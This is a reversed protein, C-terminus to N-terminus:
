TNSSPRGGLRIGCRGTRVDAAHAPRGGADAAYFAPQADSGTGTSAEAALILHSAAHVALALKPLRRNILSRHRNVAPASPGKGERKAKRQCRKEYHRSVHHSEFVSSDLAATRRKRREKRDRKRRAKRKKDAGEASAAGPGHRDVPGADERGRRAEGSEPQARCLTNHDPVKKLGIDTCWELATKSCPWSEAIARKQHGAVGPLRVVASRYLGQPQVQVSAHSMGRGSCLRCQAGETTIQLNGDRMIYCNLVYRAYGMPACNHRPNLCAVGSGRKKESNVEM